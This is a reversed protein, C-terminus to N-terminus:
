DHKGRERILQRNNKDVRSFDLDQFDYSFDTAPSIAEMKITSSKGDKDLAFIVYADANMSRDNWKVIFTNGKYFSMKGRLKPSKVAQFWLDAGNKAVHIEGFWNDIYTGTYLGLDPKVVNINQAVAIDAWVKKTVAEADEQSKLENSRYQKIRDKGQVGFYADKISNTIATFAAGSEQNTLVVIGLKLEPILTVETVIGGLGGTHSAQLYGNVDSLFWGLGYSTFHTNYPSGGRMITQPSWMEQHAATTFIKNDLNAGYKGDNLQMMAWKSMEAVNSWIGGAANAISTFEKGIVAIKGNVPAHADITNAKDKLRSYDAASETMGLPRMIRQEIFDEWTLGSVKALVEGAVVYLLNDYDFKTRFGSVPKLFRLNHILEAKTVKTSDPWIMLDGAGLGLGSRHTLLDRVTFEQTVYPNYMKFDPILDVVKDDWHLKGEDVLIALGAATFAKSNSAIGYLTHDTVPERTRLSRVGYGKSHIVKGDKVIAVAIGPVDFTILAKQVLSDVQSSSLQAKLAFNFLLLALLGMIKNRNM